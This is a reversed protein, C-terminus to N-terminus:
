VVRFCIYICHQEERVDAVIEYRRLVNFAILAQEFHGIFHVANPILFSGLIFTKVSM